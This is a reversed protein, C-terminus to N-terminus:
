KVQNTYGGNEIYRSLQEWTKFKEKKFSTVEELKETIREFVSLGYKGDDMFCVKLYRQTDANYFIRHPGYKELCRRVEEASESHKETAHSHLEIDANLDEHIEHEGNINKGNGNPLLLAVNEQPTVLSLDPPGVVLIYLGFAVAVVILLSAIMAFPSTTETDYM